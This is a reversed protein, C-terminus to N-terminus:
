QGTASMPWRAGDGYGWSGSGESAPEVPGHRHMGGYMVIGQGVLSGTPSSWPFGRRPVGAAGAPPPYGHLPDPDPSALGAARLAPWPGGQRAPSRRTAQRDVRMTSSAVGTM